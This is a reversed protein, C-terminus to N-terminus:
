EAREGIQQLVIEKVEERHSACHPVKYTFDGNKGEVMGVSPETCFHCSRSVTDKSFKLEGKKMEDRREGKEKQLIDFNQFLKM